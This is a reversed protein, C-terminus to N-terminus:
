PPIYSLFLMLLFAGGFAVIPAHTQHLYHAYLNSDTLAINLVKLLNLKAFIGVVLLPFVFRMGFVAIAIGWTLFRREWVKDMKELKMANVVANDFSLSVELVGLILTIFICLFGTGPQVHEGWLYAAIIGAITVIYSGTFYKM